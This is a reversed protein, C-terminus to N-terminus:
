GSARGVEEAFFCASQRDGEVAGPAGPHGGPSLEFLPPAEARCRNTAWPCRPHFACGVPIRALSPPAGQIPELRAGGRPVSALLGATYPHYPHGLVEETIGTEVMRGAYMVAVRDATEAAVGLDHTILVLGMGTEAQLTSLLDLIQAQVTVDLATTPEDALLVAPELALAMAIVVRQRMGGSFQHPYDGVRQAAAPIRVRDLLEVAKQKAQKRSAGRHVRFMEGIQFGVSYVPNLATLPDQFVMAIGEGRVKRREAEPLALLDRGGFRVSGSTIRGPHEVLGMVALATVSKGSGSEGLVALTQGRELSFGAGDVAKIVGAPMASEVALDRVELVPGAVPPPDVPLAGGPIRGRGPVGLGLQLAM